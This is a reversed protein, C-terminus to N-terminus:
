CSPAGINRAGARRHIERGDPNPHYVVGAGAVLPFWLTDTFGFSHFFPLVGVIRDDQTIWFVQAVAEINSILNHHSLMVGKPTGTSGSSFIVTALSDPGRRERNCRREILRAPLCFRRWPLRMAKQWGSFERLIDELFIM